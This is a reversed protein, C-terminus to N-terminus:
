VMTLLLSPTVRQWRLLLSPSRSARVLLTSVSSLTGDAAMGVGNGQEATINGTSKAWAQFMSLLTGGNVDFPVLLVGNEATIGDKRPTAAIAGAARTYVEADNEFFSFEYGELNATSPNYHYKAIGGKSM